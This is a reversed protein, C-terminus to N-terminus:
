PGNCFSRPTIAVLEGGHDLLASAISLFATYFNSTEVGISRLLRRERSDSRIKRYPPNLIACNYSESTRGLFLTGGTLLRVGSDIFDETIVEGRFEIGANRCLQGCSAVTERLYEILLPDIEYATLSLKKPRRQARCAEGVFAASLSGIGAGPDLLRIESPWAEFMSAMFHAIPSPTLFQGMEGRRSKDLRRSADLRTLDVKQLLPNAVVVVGSELANLM